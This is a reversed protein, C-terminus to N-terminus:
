DCNGWNIWLEGQDAVLPVASDPFQNAAVATFSFVQSEDSPCQFAAIRTTCVTSNVIYGLLAPGEVGIAANFSAYLTSQELYPLM